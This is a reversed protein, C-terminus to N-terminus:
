SDADKNTYVKKTKLWEKLDEEAFRWRKGIKFAPIEGKKAMRYITYEDLQLYKSVQKVTLLASSITRHKKNTEM